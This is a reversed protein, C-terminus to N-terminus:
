LLLKVFDGSNNQMPIVAEKGHLTAQYGSEPGDAIMGTEGSLQFHVPDKPILQRLGQGNLAKLAAPDNYNQIDVALGREHSSTGPRGVPM